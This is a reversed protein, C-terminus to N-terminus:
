RPGKVEGNVGAAKGCFGPPMRWKGCSSCRPLPGTQRNRARVPTRVRESLLLVRSSLTRGPTRRAIFAIHAEGYCFHHRWFGALTLEQRHHVATDREHHLRQGASSARARVGSRTGKLWAPPPTCDDDTFGLYEGQAMAAAANRGAAPGANPQRLWTM